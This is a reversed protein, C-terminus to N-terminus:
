ADEKAQQMEAVVDAWQEEKLKTAHDVGFDNLIKIVADRGKAAALGNVAKQVDAYVITPEDNDQGSPGAETPKSATGSSPSASEESSTTANGEESEQAPEEAKEARPKRPKRNSLKEPEVVPKDPIPGSGMQVATGTAFGAALALVQAIADAPNAAEIKIEIGV